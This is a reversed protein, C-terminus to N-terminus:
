IGAGHLTKTLKVVCSYWVVAFDVFIPIKSSGRLERYQNESTVDSKGDGESV